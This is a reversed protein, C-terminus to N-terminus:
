PLRTFKTGKKAVYEGTPLEDIVKDGFKDRLIDYVTGIGGKYSRTDKIAEGILYFQNHEIDYGFVQVLVKIKNPSMDENWYFHRTM